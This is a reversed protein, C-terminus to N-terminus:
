RTAVIVAASAAVIAALQAVVTLADLFVDWFKPGPPDEPVWITDGPKLLVDEDADIWEGTKAKIIRLDGDLARWGFGGALNIYDNVSLTSDYIIKGPNVFQGLMIIYDKKEPINIIDNKRLIIDERLDNQEFLKVFDIVVLGTRQRSKSKYYDYEDETMKDTLILKLREFEPDLEDVDMTRSLSAETLSAEELFGGAKNVIEALSTVNKEIKYFGPFRVYGNVQVYHEIYYEPIQRVIVHDKNQLVIPNEKVDDYSFYKSIQIKGDDLFRVLEITDKRANYLFGGALKILDAVSENPRFEYIAPFQVQGSIQVIKDVKGIMIVDGELLIPNNLYDGNRLFSILDYEKLEGNKTQVKINRIDSTETLQKSGTVLDMLRSNSPLTFVSPKLINGVLSVKIMRFDVLSIFIDVDKFYRLIADSIKEKAVALTNKRLDIGGIRPIYLFGEQDIIFTNSIETVGSISIFIKDGPGVRYEEPNIIGETAIRPISATSIQSLSDQIFREPYDPLQQTLGKNSLLITLFTILFLKLKM